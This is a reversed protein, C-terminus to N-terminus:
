DNLLGERIPSMIVMSVSSCAAPTSRSLTESDGYAFGPSVRRLVPTTKRM